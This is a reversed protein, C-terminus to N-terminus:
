RRDRGRQLRSRVIALGALSAAAAGVMLNAPEPVMGAVGEYNLIVDDLVAETAIVNGLLHGHNIFTFTVTSSGPQFDVYYRQSAGLLADSSSYPVALFLSSEGTIDLQLLGPATFASSPVAADEGSVWFDLLYNAGPTLGTVTQQIQMAPTFGTPPVHPGFIPPTAFTIVGNAAFSPSPTVFTSQNGMYIGLSGDPLAASGRLGAGSVSSDNGWVAYNDSGGLTTWSTPVQTPGLTTGIGTLVHSAMPTAAGSWGPTWVGNEFSGNAILNLAHSGMLADGSSVSIITASASRPLSAALGLFLLITPFAPSRTGTTSGRLPLYM